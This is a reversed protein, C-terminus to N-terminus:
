NPRRLRLYKVLRRSTSAATARRNATKTKQSFKGKRGSGIIRRKLRGVVLRVVRVKGPCHGM